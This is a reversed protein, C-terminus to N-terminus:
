KSNAALATELRRALEGFSIQLAGCLALMTVLTPSKQGLELMSIYTRDLGAAYGLSEQTAKRATRLERLVEGFARNPSTM